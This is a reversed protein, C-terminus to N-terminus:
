KQQWIWDKGTRTRLEYGLGKLFREAGPHGRNLECCIVPTHQRITQEAGQLVELEHGQVDIKIGQIHGEHTLSDLPRARLRLRQRGEGDGLDIGTDGSNDSRIWVTRDGLANSLLNPRVEINKQESLEVNRALTQWHVPEYAYVRKCVLSLPLTWSGAHAGIDIITDITDVTLMPPEQSWNAEDRVAQQFAQRNKHQYDWFAGHHEFHTDGKPWSFFEAARMKKELLESDM